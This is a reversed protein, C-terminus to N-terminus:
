IINKRALVISMIGGAGDALLDGATDLFYSAYGGYYAIPVAGYETIEFAAGFFLVALLAPWARRFYPSFIYGLSAGAVAHVAKDWQPVLTDQPFGSLWFAFLFSSGLVALAVAHRATFPASSTLIARIM